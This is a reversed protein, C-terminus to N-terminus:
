TDISNLSTDSDMNIEQIPRATPSRPMRVSGSQKPSEEMSSQLELSQRVKARVTEYRIQYLNPRSSVDQSM